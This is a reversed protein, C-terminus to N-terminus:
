LSSIPQLQPIMLIRKAHQDVIFQRASINTPEMLWQQRRQDPLPIADRGSSRTVTALPTTYKLLMQEVPLLLQGDDSIRRYTTVRKVYASVRYPTMMGFIQLYM